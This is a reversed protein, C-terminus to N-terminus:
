IRSDGTILKSQLVTFATLLLLNLGLLISICTHGHPFYKFLNSLTIEHLRIENFKWYWLWLKSLWTICLWTIRLKDHSAFEPLYKERVIKWGKGLSVAFHWQKAKDRLIRCACKLIIIKYFNGKYASQWAPPLVWVCLLDDCYSRLLIDFTKSNCHLRLM